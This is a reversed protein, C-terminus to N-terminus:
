GITITENKEAYNLDAMKLGASIAGGVTKADRMAILNQIAGKSQDGSKVKEKGKDTLAIKRKDKMLEAKRAEQGERAKALAEPNGKRAAPAAAKGKALPADKAAAKLGEKDATKPASKGKLKETAMIAEEKSFPMFLGLLRIAEPTAGSAMARMKFSAAVTEPDKVSRIYRTGREGVMGTAIEASFVHSKSTEWCVCRLTEGDQEAVLRDQRIYGMADYCVFPTFQSRRRM